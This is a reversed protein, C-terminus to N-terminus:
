IYLVVQLSRSTYPFRDTHISLIFEHHHVFGYNKMPFSYICFLQLCCFQCVILQYINLNECVEIYFLEKLTVLSPNVGSSSWSHLASSFLKLRKTGISWWQSSLVLRYLIQDDLVCLCHINLSFSFQAFYFILHDLTIFIIVWAFNLFYSLWIEYSVILFLGLFSQSKM